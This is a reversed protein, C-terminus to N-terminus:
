QKTEEPMAMNLANILAQRGSPKRGYGNGGVYPTPKVIATATVQAQLMAAETNRKALYAMVRVKRSRPDKVGQRDFEVALFHDASM